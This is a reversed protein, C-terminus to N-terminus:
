LAETPHNSRAAFYEDLLEVEDPDLDLWHALNETVACTEFSADVLPMHPLNLLGVVKVVPAPVQRAAQEPTDAEIWMLRTEIVEVLVPHATTTPTLMQPM